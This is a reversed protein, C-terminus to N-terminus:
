TTGLVELRSLIAHGLELFLNEPGAVRELDLKKM